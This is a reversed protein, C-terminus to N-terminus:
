ANSLILLTYLVALILLALWVIALIAVTRPSSLFAIM